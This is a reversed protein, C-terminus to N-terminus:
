MMAEATASGIVPQSASLTPARRSNMPETVPNMRAEISHPSAWFRSSITAKRAKCPTAPAKMAGKLWAKMSSAVRGLRWGCIMAIQPMPIM